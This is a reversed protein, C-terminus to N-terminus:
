KAWAQELVRREAAGVGDLASADDFAPLCLV